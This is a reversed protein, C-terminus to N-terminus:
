ATNRRIIEYGVDIQQPSENSSSSNLILQAALEGIEFGPVRVTTLGVGFENAFEFDGFGAIAIDDPVKLGMRQAESLAGLAITDNACFIADTDPWKQMLAAFDQAGYKSNNPATTDPIKRFQANGFRRCAEQYGLFRQQSRISTKSNGLFGIRQRSSKYLYEVMALAANHNSFGVAHHVSTYPLEWVEVIPIGCSKLLKSAESTHQTSTLVLGAPRRRLMTVIFDEEKDRSYDTCAFLLQHNAARLRTSLGEITSTFASGTLTPIFAAVTRNQQSSLDGAGENPVYGLKDIITQIKERTAKAVKEPTRIVRSVTILSVGAEEAVEAMTVWRRYEKKM